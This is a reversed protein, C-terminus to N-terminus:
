RCVAGGLDTNVCKIKKIKKYGQMHLSFDVELVTKIESGMHTVYSKPSEIPQDPPRAAFTKRTYPITHTRTVDLGIM